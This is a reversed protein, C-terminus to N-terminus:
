DGGRRWNGGRNKMWPKYDVTQVVPGPAQAQPVYVTAADAPVAAAAAFSVSLVTALLGTAIRNM